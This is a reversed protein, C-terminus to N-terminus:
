TAGAARPGPPAAAAGGGGAPGAPGRPGQTGPPIVSKPFKKARNLALLKGAQPSRSAQVGNVKGANQAFKALPVISLAAQGLGTLALMAIGLALASLVVPLRYRM